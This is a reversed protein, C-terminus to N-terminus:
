TKPPCEKNPRIIIEKNNPHNKPFIIILDYVFLHSLDRKIVIADGRRNRGRPERFENAVTM